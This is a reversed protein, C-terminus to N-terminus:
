PHSLTGPTSPTSPTIVLSRVKAGYLPLEKSVPSGHLTITAKHLFPDDETGM